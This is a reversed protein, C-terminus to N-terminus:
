ALRGALELGARALRHLSEDVGLADLEDITVWRIDTSEHNGTLESGEPALVLFRLDLHDHEPESPPAVLHIDLDIVPLAVALGTLGTEETAERLASAPMNSSGDVHGGPQLWKRLKTHHLVVFRNTGREVVLASATFHGPACTRHLADPHARAFSIMRDRTRIQSEDISEYHALHDVVRELDTTSALQPQDLLIPTRSTPFEGASFLREAM